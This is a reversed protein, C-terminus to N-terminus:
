DGEPTKSRIDSMGTLLIEYELFGDAIKDDKKGSVHYNADEDLFSEISDRFNNIEDESQDSWYLTLSVGKAIEIINEFRNKVDTLFLDAKISGYYGIMYGDIRMISGYPDEHFYYDIENIIM